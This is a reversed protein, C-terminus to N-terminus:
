SFLMGLTNVGCHKISVNAIKTKLLFLKIIFLAKLQLREKSFPIEVLHTPCVPATNAPM